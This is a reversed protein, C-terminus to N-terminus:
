LCSQAMLQDLDLSWLKVTRDISSVITLTKGDPSWSVSFVFGSHGELRNHEHIQVLTQQLTAATQIYTKPFADQSLEKLQKGARIGELLAELQLGSAMLNASYLNTAVIEANGKQALAEKENKQAARKAAIAQDRQQREAQRAAEAERQRQEAVGQAEDDAKKQGEALNRQQLAILRQKDAERRQQVAIKAQRLAIKRQKQAIDRQELANIREKQTIRTQNNAIKRQIVAEQRQIVTEIRQELSTELAKRTKQGEGIAYLASAGTVLAIFSLGAILPM